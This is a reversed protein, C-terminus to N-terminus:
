ARVTLYAFREIKPLPVTVLYGATFQIWRSWHQADSDEGHFGERIFLFTLTLQSLLEIPDFQAVFTRFTDFAEKPTIPDFEPEDM